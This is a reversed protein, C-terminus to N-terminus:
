EKAEPRAAAKVDTIQAKGDLVFTLLKPLSTPANSAARPAEGIAAPRPPVGTGIGGALTVYQKGDLQFTIPPGM